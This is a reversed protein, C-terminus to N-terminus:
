GSETKGVTEGTRSEKMAGERRTLLARSAADSDSASSNPPPLMGALAIEPPTASKASIWSWSREPFFTDAYIM